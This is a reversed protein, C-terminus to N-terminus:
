RVTQGSPVGQAAGSSGTLRRGLADMADFGEPFVSPRGERSAVRAEQINREGPRQEGGLGTFQNGVDVGPPLAAAGTPSTSEALQDLLGMREAALQGQATLMDPSNLLQEAKMLVQEELPNRIGIRRQHEYLSYSGAQYLRLSLLSQREQEEPAEAKLRVSNEVYGKIDNPGITQDFNHASTRAHVTVRGRAKNEVLMAFKSNDEEISRALGDAAGQFVLRGTGALVSLAFGTSVGRPRLGRVVNPFTAEEIATQVEQLYGFVDPPVNVTPTSSVVTAGLINKGGWLEYDEADASAQQRNPNKFDMSRWAYQRIIAEAQTMLRAEADLLSIIPMIMGQYREHPLGEYGGLSNAPEVMTYPLFGYGHRHPGWVWQGGAIYGAYEEDWYEIWETLHGNTAGVWEPYRRRVEAASKEYFEIVWRPKIASEDWVMRQPDVNRLGFPFAINRKEMFDALAEKYDSENKYTSFVPAKPWMDAKWMNKRWAVGYAFADRASNRLVPDKISAWVGQYFKQLREARARARPSALPVDIAINGVDIHDTAVNIISHATSPKIHDDFGEATPVKNRGYYYNRVQRCQGHFQQFYEKGERLLGMVIDLTPAQGEPKMTMTVM